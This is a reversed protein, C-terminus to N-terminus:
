YSSSTIVVRIGDLTMPKGFLWEDAQTFYSCLIDLMM